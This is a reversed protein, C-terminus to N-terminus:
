EEVVEVDHDEAVFDCSQITFLPFVLFFSGSGLDMKLLFIEM